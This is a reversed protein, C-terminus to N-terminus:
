NIISYISVVLKLVRPIAQLCQPKQWAVLGPVTIRWGGIALVQLIGPVQIEIVALPHLAGQGIQAPVGVTAREPTGPLGQGRALLALM